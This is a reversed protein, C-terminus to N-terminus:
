GITVPYGHAELTEAAKRVDNEDHLDIRLSGTEFERNHIIGMNKINISKSALITAVVALTGPEDYIEVHISNASKIPGKSSDSFSERYTRASDFLERSLGEADYRNFLRVKTLSRIGLLGRADNLLARAEQDLGPKKEVYVRYVM